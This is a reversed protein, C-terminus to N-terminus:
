SVERTTAQLGQQASDDDLCPDGAKGLLFLINKSLELLAQFFITFALALILSKILFM